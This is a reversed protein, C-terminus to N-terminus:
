IANPLVVENFGDKIKVDHVNSNAVKLIRGKFKIRNVQCNSSQNHVM